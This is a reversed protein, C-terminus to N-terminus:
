NKNLLFSYFNSVALIRKIYYPNAITEIREMKKYKNKKKWKENKRETEKATAKAKAKVVAEWEGVKTYSKSPYMRRKIFKNFYFAEYFLKCM